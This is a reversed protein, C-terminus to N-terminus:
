DEILHLIGRPMSINYINDLACKTNINERRRGGALVKVAGKKMEVEFTSAFRIDLMPCVVFIEMQIRKKQVCSITPQGFLAILFYNEFMM